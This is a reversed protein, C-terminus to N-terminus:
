NKNLPPLNGGRGIERVLRYDGLTTEVDAALPGGAAESHWSLGAEELMRLAPIM